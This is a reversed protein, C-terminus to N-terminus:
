RYRAVFRIINFLLKDAVPDQGLNRVLRLQSILCRGQGYPVIAMDAGWWSQGPGSYHFKHDHSFWEFGISAVITEGGLNRLTQKPWVNEYIDRMMGEAPLGDFIPHKSVLHPICTWLGMAHEVEGSVPVAKSRIQNSGQRNFQRDVGDLYVATGGGNIFDFLNAFRNEESANKPKVSTVFVPVSTPTASNFESFDIRSKKLFPRLSNSLDLVAVKVLPPALEQSPFVDFDYTNGTILAGDKSSVRAQVSYSGKLRSTELEEKLLNSIGSDWEAEFKKRLVTEGSESRIQVTLVVDISQRENIGTISLTAGKEAYVNRPFMRISLIRPQNAARTAEYAYSKPNRWIDLLGAGLIWDGATLAHICYGDVEPNSRVAEIMRKNAAGHISQQDLCFQELDPYLRDFGSEKLAQMQGVALRHHYRYAPALPMGDREFRRNTEPLNPLSGYGLESVFSMLGPVVNRGPTTGKFGFARKQERNMGITLYGDYLGQNIFPGPYNHIDNFKTPEYQEPLYINAGFAWGGSEDLILRTPDLERTLMAMPRMMQKLIPRHLENFLEWQVVCTRNRDRRVAESIERQVREPLYPTSLPLRMCELAPSGVVLVGMEDALDLWMPVPPRRWPRIMNFGAEKALRIERRAMEVSDPHAIGNPYLGEFFAAKIYIPEGNLQFAKNRITFERLGFRYSWRDSETENTLVRLKALYLFPNDPSWAKADPISLTWSRRNVGPRLDLHKRLRAVPTSPAKAEVIDIAVEASTGRVATHDLEVHFTAVSDALSPELFVDKVYIDGSAVLRVSQWIGGTIGGRWQPTELPGVGDVTKDSLIIPGVVRLLLVNTEGPKLIRDVRFEFPTFGGEHFGVAEGNLWIESLYNVAGFQLRVIRNSWNEPVEFERRYFAVGEYDKEILEWASPVEIAKRQELRSFVTDVHWSEERGENAHDFAIEWTGDLSLEERHLPLAAQAPVYRALIVALVFLRALKFNFMISDVKGPMVEKSFGSDNRTEGKRGLGHQNKRSSIKLARQLHGTRPRGAIAAADDGIMEQDTSGTVLKLTKLLTAQATKDPRGAGGLRVIGRLALIREQANSSTSAV